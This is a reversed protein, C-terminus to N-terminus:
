QELDAIMKTREKLETDQVEVHHELHGIGQTGTEVEERTIDLLMCTYNWRHEVDSLRHYVEQLEHDQELPPCAGNCLIANEHRLWEIEHTATASEEYTMLCMRQQM